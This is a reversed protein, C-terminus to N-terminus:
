RREIEAKVAEPSLGDPVNMWQHRLVDRLTIRLAPELVFIRNFLDVLEPSIGERLNQWEAWFTENPLSSSLVSGTM